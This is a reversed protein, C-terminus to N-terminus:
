CLLRSSAWALLIIQLWASTEANFTGREISPKTTCLYYAIGILISGGGVLKSGGSASQWIITGWPPIIAFDIIARKM